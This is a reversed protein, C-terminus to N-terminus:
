PHIITIVKVVGSWEENNEIFVRTNSPQADSEIYQNIKVDIYQNVIKIPKITNKLNIQKNKYNEIRKLQFHSKIREM